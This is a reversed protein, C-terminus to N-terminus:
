KADWRPINEFVARRGGQGPKKSPRAVRLTFALYQGVATLHLTNRKWDDDDKYCARANEVDETPVAVTVWM